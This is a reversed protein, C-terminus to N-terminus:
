SAQQVLPLPGEAMWLELADFTALAATTVPDWAAGPVDIELRLVEQLLRWRRRASEATLGCYFSGGTGPGVGLSKAVQRGIIRGGLNSGEIVYLAGLAGAVCQPPQHLRRSEAPVAGFWAIDEALAALGAGDLLAEARSKGRLCRALDREISSHFAHLRRLTQVYETVNLDPALLRSLSPVKEISAHAARTAARLRELIGPAEAALPASAAFLAAEAFKPQWIREETIQCAIETAAETSMPVGLLYGQIADAGAIVAANLQVQDEVGEVVVRLGASHALAVIATLFSRGGTIVSEQEPLFSRDLKVIDAPLHQLTALSSNGIGFADIAVLIGLRRIEGIAAVAEENTLVAETIELCLRSHEIGRADLMGALEAAFGARTLQLPSVNVSISVDRGVLEVSPPVEVLHRMAAELVLDGVAEILGTSEALPIFEAPSINGLSPHNWRLLAEWSLVVGSGADVIPQLALQFQERDSKLASELSQEIQIRRVDGDAAAAEFISVRDGGSLKAQRTAMEASRLLGRVHGTVPSNDAVGVSAALKVVQKDIEFAQSFVATLRAGLEIALGRTSLVGFEDPGIRAVKDGANVTAQLRQGIQLLLADGAPRGYKENVKDFGDMSLIALATPPQVAMEAVEHLHSEIAARDLLGTPTDRGDARVQFEWARRQILAEDVIRRLDRACDLDDDTWPVSRGSVSECWAAFSERPELRGTKPDPARKHPNGAWMVTSNSERRLWVISGGECGPLPVHLAGAFGELDKPLLELTGALGSTATVDTPAQGALAAMLTRFTRRDPTHGVEIMRDGVTVVVGDALILNVLDRGCAAFADGISPDANAMAGAIGALSRKRQTRRANLDSQMLTSLMVSMVQGVLDLQGRQYASIERPSNHHSVLMGWLRGEVILSVTTSAAVGMNSLYQLHVPSVARLWSGSLDLDTAISGAAALLTVPVAAVDAIVRVRQVMYLRRAQQPIDSAPYRLGLFGAVGPAHNEAIVDGDGDADFRYIMVRDYGTIRRVDNVAIRCLGDTSRSLRLAQIIHQALLMVPLDADAPPERFVDVALSKPTFFPLLSIRGRGFDADLGKSTSDARRAQALGPLLGAREEGLLEAAPRGLAAAAEMGIFADLNASAHTVCLTNLDFALLAGHPQVTGPLQIPERDCVTLLEDLTMPTNM